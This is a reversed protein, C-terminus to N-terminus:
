QRRAGAVVAAASEVVVAEAFDVEEVAGAEAL